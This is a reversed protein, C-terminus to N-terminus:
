RRVFIETVTVFGYEDSIVGIGVHTYAASLMTRRHGESSLFAADSHYISRNRAINENASIYEIGFSSLMTRINGYTPSIHSFYNKDIMEQSKIRAIRCLEEDLELSAIGYRMRDENLLQFLTQEDTTVSAISEANSSTPLLILAILFSPLIRTFIHKM